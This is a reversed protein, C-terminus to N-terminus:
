ENVNGLKIKPNIIAFWTKDKTQPHFTGDIKIIENWLRVFNETGFKQAMDVQFNRVQESKILNWLDLIVSSDVDEPEMVEVGYDTTLYYFEEEDIKQLETLLKIVKSKSIKNLLARSDIFNKTDIEASVIDKGYSQAIEIQNGFYIGIGEQNNGNNMLSPNIKKTKHNDGHFVQVKSENLFDKFNIM